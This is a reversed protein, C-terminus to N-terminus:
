VSRGDVSLLSCVRTVYTDHL